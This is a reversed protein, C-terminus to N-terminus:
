MCCYCYHNLGVAATKTSSTPFAGSIALDSPTGSVRSFSSQLAEGIVVSLTQIKGQLRAAKRRSQVVDHWTLQLDVPTIYECPFDFYTWARRWSVTSSTILNQKKKVASCPICDRYLSPFETQGDTRRDTRGDTQRDTLRTCQSLRFFVWDM